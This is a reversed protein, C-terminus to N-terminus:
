LLEAPEGGLEQIVKYAMVDKIASPKDHSV